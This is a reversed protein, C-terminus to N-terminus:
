WQQSIQEAYKLQEDTSGRLYIRTTDLRCHGMLDALLTIDGGHALFQKAYFHRFSYPHLVNQPIGYKLGHQKVLNCLGQPSMKAGRNNPFLLNSKVTNFYGKSKRILFGPIYIRRRMGKSVTDQYGSSLCSKDLLLLDNPRVGTHGLFLILFYMRINGDALLGTTYKNYDSASIVNDVAGIIKIPELRVCFENFGLFICFQNMASIYGNATSNAYSGLCHSKFNQMTEKSIEDFLGSYCRYATKYGEITSKCIEASRKRLFQDFSASLKNVPVSYEEPETYPLYSYVNGTTTCLKEAIEPISMGSRKLSLCEESKPCSFLGYSILAKRVRHFETGLNRAIERMPTGNVYQCKIEFAEADDPPLYYQERESSPKLYTFM